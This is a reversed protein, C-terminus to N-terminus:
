SGAGIGNNNSLQGDPATLAATNSSAAATQVMETTFIDAITGSMSAQPVPVVSVTDFRDDHVYNKNTGDINQILSRNAEKEYVLDKKAKLNNFNTSISHVSDFCQQRFLYDLTWAIRSDEVLYTKLEGSCEFTAFFQGTDTKIGVAVITGLVLRDGTSKPFQQLHKM